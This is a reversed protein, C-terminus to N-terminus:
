PRDVTMLDRPCGRCFGVWGGACGLAPLRAPRACQSEDRAPTPKARRPEGAAHSPHRLGQASALRRPMARQCEIVLGSSTRAKSRMAAALLEPPMPEAVAHVQVDCHQSIRDVVSQPIPRTILVKHRPHDSMKRDM